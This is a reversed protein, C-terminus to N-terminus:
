GAYERIMREVSGLYATGFLNLHNLLHYLHYLDRREEYEKWIVPNIERYAEYFTRPLSGFLQTMALDTEYDGVYVAPDIIWPRNETGCIMNGSWLDGHLLSPFEPERLYADLHDLLREAKRQIDLSLYKRARDLQPALRCDRYFHIWSADPRNKQPSIGIFNDETFGYAGTKGANVITRGWKSRHLMALQQGFAEWYAKQPRQSEIYELILFAQDTDEDTGLALIEPVSVAQLSGLAELGCAEATFFDKRDKKNMKLFVKTGDALYLCYADNSDGGSMQKMDRIEADQGFIDKIAQEPSQDKHVYKM